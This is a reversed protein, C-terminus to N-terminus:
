YPNQERYERRTIFDEKISDTMYHFKDWDENNKIYDSLANKSRAVTKIRWWTENYLPSTSTEEYRTRKEPKIWVWRFSNGETRDNTHYIIQNEKKSQGWDVALNLQGNPKIKIARKFKKVGWKGLNSPLVILNGTTLAHDVYFKNLETIVAQYDHINYGINRHTSAAYRNKFMVFAKASNTSLDTSATTDTEKISLNYKRQGRHKAKPTTWIGDKRQVKGDSRVIRETQHKIM